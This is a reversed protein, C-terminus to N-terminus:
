KMYMFNFSGNGNAGDAAVARWRVTYTGGAMAGTVKAVAVKPSDLVARLSDLAIAQGNVTLLEVGAKGVDVRGTFTLRIESPAATVHSDKTPTSGALGIHFRLGSPVVAFAGLMTAAAIGARVHRSTQRHAVSLTPLNTGPSPFHPVPDPSATVYKIRSLIDERHLVTWDVPM